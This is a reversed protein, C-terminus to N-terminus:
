QSTLFGAGLFGCGMQVTKHVPWLNTCFLSGYGAKKKKRSMCEREVMVYPEKDTRQTAAQCQELYTKVQRSKVEANPM